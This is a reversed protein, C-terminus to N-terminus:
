IKNLGISSEPAPRSVLDPMALSFLQPPRRWSLQKRRHRRDRRRLPVVCNRPGARRVPGGLVVMNRLLMGQVLRAGPARAAVRRVLARVRFTRVEARDEFRGLGSAIFAPFSSRQSRRPELNHLPADAPDVPWVRLLAVGSGYLSSYRRSRPSSSGREFVDVRRGDAHLDGRRETIRPPVRYTLDAM